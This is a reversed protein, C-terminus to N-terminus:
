RPHGLEYLHWDYFSSRVTGLYTLPSIVPLPDENRYTHFTRIETHAPGRDSEIWVSLWELHTSIQVARIQSGTPMTMQYDATADLPIVCERVTRM